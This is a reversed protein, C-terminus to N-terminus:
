SNLPERTLQSREFADNLSADIVCEYEEIKALLTQQQAHIFEISATAGHASHKTIRSRVIVDGKPWSSQYQTFQKFAVPLSGAKHTEFSWLIMAQFACDLVLPDCVWKRRRPKAIWQTPAPAPKVQVDIGGEGYGAVSQIGQFDEGHFLLGNEYVEDMSRPYTGLELDQASPQATEYRTGLRVTGQAHLVDWSTGSRMTVRVLQEGNKAESKQAVIALDLGAM